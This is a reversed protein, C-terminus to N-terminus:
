PVAGHCVEFHWWTEEGLDQFRAVVTGFEDATMEPLDNYNVITRTDDVASRIIYSSAAEDFGDRFFCHDLSMTKGSSRRGSATASGELSPSGM